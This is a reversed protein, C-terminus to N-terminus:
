SKRRRAFFWVAVAVCSISILAVAGIIELGMPEGRTIFGYEVMPDKTINFSASPAIPSLPDMWHDISWSAGYMLANNSAWVLFFSYTGLRLVGTRNTISFTDGPSLGSSSNTPTSSLTLDADYSLPEEVNSWLKPPAGPAVLIAKCESVRLSTPIFSVVEILISATDDSVRLNCSICPTPPSAEVHAPIATVVIALAALVAWVSRM